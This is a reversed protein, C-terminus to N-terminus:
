ALAHRAPREAPRQRPIVAFADDDTVNLQRLDTLLCRLEKRVVSYCECSRAELAARDLVTIHGRRYKIVGASQLKGAADTVGERRVGLMSAVLEQTTAVEQSNVRDLTLLLWRCLQQEIEHHRNCAVTQAMQAILTQTYRLLLRQMFGARNFEDKLLRAPLRYGHGGHQVVASGPTSDGGMFLAMGIMGENAVSATESSSGNQMVYHLSVISTTPFYAYQLGRGADALMEGLPMAVPELHASLRAFDAAPLADLLHNRAFQVHTM